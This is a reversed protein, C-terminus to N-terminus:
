KRGNYVEALKYLEALIEENKVTKVIEGNKFILSQAKGGCVGFDAGKSEGIGNVACGMVAIKMSKQMKETLTEIKKAFNEVDICTRACTPCSIVEVYNKRLGVARLIKIGEEVERKVSSTLSVRITDGIGDLLLAGIAVHSKVTGMKETGAETLGVHLPYDTLKSLTRYAEVTETVSSSKVALVLEDTGADEMLRATDLCLSALESPSLKVNQSGQNVGIRIPVHREKALKAVLKLGDPSMNGPNIRLKHAGQDLAALALNHDYHVDAVVPIPSAEVIYRLANASDRDPVSVRVIDCGENALMFISAITAKYDSTLTDTMSQVTIPAGGGIKVDKVTVQKTM